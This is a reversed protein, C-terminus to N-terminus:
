QMQLMMEMLQGTLVQADGTGGGATVTPIIDGLRLDEVKSLAEVMEEKSQGHM